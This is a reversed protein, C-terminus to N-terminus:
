RMSIGSGTCIGDGRSPFTCRLAPFIAPWKRCTSSTRTATRRRCRRRTPRWPLVLYVVGAVLMPLLAWRLLRSQQRSLDVEHRAIRRRPSAVVPDGPGFFVTFLQRIRVDSGGLVSLAIVFTALGHALRLRRRAPRTTARSLRGTSFLWRVCAMRRASISCRTSRRRNGLLYDRLIIHSQHNFTAATGIM